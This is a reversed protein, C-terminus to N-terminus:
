NRVNSVQNQDTSNVIQHSNSSATYKMSQSDNTLHAGSADEPPKVLLWNSQDLLFGMVNLSSFAQLLTQFNMANIEQMSTFVTILELKSPNKATRSLQYVFKDTPLIDQLREKFSM